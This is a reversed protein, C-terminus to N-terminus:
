LGKPKLIKMLNNMKTKMERIDESIHAIDTAIKVIEKQLPLVKDELDKVRREIWENKDNMAKLGDEFRTQNIATSVFVGGIMVVALIVNWPTLGALISNVIPPKGNGNTVTAM